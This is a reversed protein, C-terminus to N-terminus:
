ALYNKMTTVFGDINIPKALYADCGVEKIKDLDGAMALTTVAVIPIDKTAPDSKLQRTVDLGSMGPLMIDMVIVAPQKEKALNLADQGSAAHHIEVGLPALVSRYLKMILQNDEVLLISKTM